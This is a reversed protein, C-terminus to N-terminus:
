TSIYFGCIFKAFPLPEGIKSIVPAMLIVYVAAILTKSLSEESCRFNNSLSLSLHSNVFNTETSLPLWFRFPVPMSAHRLMFFSVIRYIPVSLFIGLCAYVLCKVTLNRSVFSHSPPNWGSLFLPSSKKVSLELVSLAMLTHYLSSSAYSWGQIICWLIESLFTLWWPM